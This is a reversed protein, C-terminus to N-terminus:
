TNLTEMSFTQVVGIPNENVVVGDDNDHHQQFCYRCSVIEKIATRVPKLFCISVIPTILSVISFLIRLTYLLALQKVVQGKLAAQSLHFITPIATSSFSMLVAIFHFALNKAVARKLESNGELTNKRIYVQTAVSFGFIIIVYVFGLILWFVIFGIYLPARSGVRCVGLGVSVRINDAHVVQSSLIPLAWLVIMSPIIVKWKLASSRSVIFIYVIIAYLSAAGLRVLGSTVIASYLISCLEDDDHVGLAFSPYGLYAISMVFLASFESAYGNLLVVRIQLNIEQAKLLAVACLGCLITAPVLLLCFLFVNVATNAIFLDSTSSFMSANFM